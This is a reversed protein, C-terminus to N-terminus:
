APSGAETWPTGGSASASGGLRDARRGRRVRRAGRRGGGGQPRGAVARPHPGGGRPLGPPGDGRPPLQPTASGMGGVYMATLPKKRTSRARVDDTFTSARRRRLGRLRRPRRAAAARVGPELLPGYVEPGDAGWGMPLLGDAVEAALETNRPGGAALWIEIEGARTCSRGCRSARARARGPGHLPLPISPHRRQHAARPRVGQAHHRRVRAAAPQPQGVAPRVLGRRDAPGSVGLGIIVRGGGALADITLAHMATAAPTRAAIQVVGTASSSARQDAAALYALPRCPTPATPRPRGCRTTASRRRGASRSSPCTWRARRPVPRPRTGLKM